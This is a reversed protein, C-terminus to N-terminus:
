APRTMENSGTTWMIADLLAQDDVPKRFFFKAGLGRAAQRTEEDDRASVAIVPLQIGRDELRKQVKLGTLGPMTMDLLICARRKECVEDLFRDASAFASVDFGASLMLRSLGKRVSDDDDVIYIMLAQHTKTM